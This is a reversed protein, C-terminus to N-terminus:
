GATHARRYQGPACGVIRRFATNFASESEYGLASALEGISARRHRLADRALAMRWASLYRHPPEGVLRRFRLAFASRSMGATGALTDLTWARAVDAHLARLARGIGPDALAGLLSRRGPEPAARLAHVLVLQTVHELALAQGPRPETLEGTLLDFLSTLPAASPHDRRVALAPPLLDTLWSAHVPDLAFHGGVIHTTTGHRGIRLVDGRAARFLTAADRVPATADSAMVYEAPNSLVYVDGAGLQLPGRAGVRIWCSGARVMGFKVHPYREFRLGWRGRAVLSASLVARPRVLALGETVPDQVFSFSM